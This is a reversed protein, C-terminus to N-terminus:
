IYYHSVPSFFIVLFSFFLSMQLLNSVKGPFLFLTALGKRWWINGEDAFFLWASHGAL